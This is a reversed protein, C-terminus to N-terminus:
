KTSIQTSEHELEQAKNRTKQALCLLWMVGWVEKEEKRTCFISGRLILGLQAVQLREAACLTPGIRSILNFHSAGCGCGQKRIVVSHRQAESSSLAAKM